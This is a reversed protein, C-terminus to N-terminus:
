RNKKASCDRRQTMITMAEIVDTMCTIEKFGHAPLYKAMLMAVVLRPLTLILMAMVYCRKQIHKPNLNGFNFTAFNINQYSNNKAIKIM